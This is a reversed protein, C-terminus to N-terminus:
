DRGGLDFSVSGQLCRVLTVLCLRRGCDRGGLDFSVSGQLCRVLTVLCLRRGCDRGGLDFSVSGIRCSPELTATFLLLVPTGILKGDNWRYPM